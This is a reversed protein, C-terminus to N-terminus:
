LSVKAVRGWGDYDIEDLLYKRIKVLYRSLWRYDDKLYRIQGIVIAPHVEMLSSFGIVDRESIYPAKRNYFSMLKERPYCFNLAAINADREEKEIEAGDSMAEPVLNDLIGKDKGHDLLVHEIEHRLVFWFNDMRDQLTSLGIVPKSNDLWTCVGDIKNQPSSPLAESVVFRVGCEALIQPVYRVDEPNITLGRLKPLADLLNKRSYKAINMERAIQRVRFLWAIQEPPDSEYQTRKAAANSVLTIKPVNVLSDAEFFRTIQMELLPQDGEEFWGRRLMERIPFATQLEARAKVSPDPERATRLEHAKQLNAWVEASTGFAEGLAKAMEATIGQKGSILKNVTQETYGLIYALDRQSWGRAEIEDRIFVGPPEAYNNFKEM